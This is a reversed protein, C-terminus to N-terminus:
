KCFCYRVLGMGLAFVFGHWFSELRITSKERQIRWRGISWMLWGAVLPAFLLNVTRLPTTKIFHHHFLFLSLAGAVAGLLLSGLGALWPNRFKRQEFVEGVARCGLEALLEGFLQLVVEFLIEFLFEM